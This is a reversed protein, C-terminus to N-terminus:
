LKSIIDLARPELIRSQSYFDPLRSYLAM